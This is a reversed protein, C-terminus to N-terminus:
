QNSQQKKKNKLLDDMQAVVIALFMLACGILENITLTQHLLIFGSLAAFCSEFSMILSAIAPDTDRQGIVQFTYAIGSSLVGTYLIPIMANSIAKINPHEFIIMFFFSIIGMVAFQARSLEMGNLLPSFHDVSIIQFAFLIACAIVYIDATEISFSTGAISLFYLGCSALIVSIWIMPKAKKGFFINFVPVLVVYMATIFGAKGVTTMSIGIQQTISAACLFTGCVLGGKLLNKKEENTKNKNKNFFPIIITLTLVAIISRMFNFTWPEIDNMAVSQAVFASGWIFSGIFLLIEGKKM